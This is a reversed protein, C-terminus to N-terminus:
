VEAIYENLSAERDLELKKKLRYKRQEVGNVTINLIAAIETNSFGM